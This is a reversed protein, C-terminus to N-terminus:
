PDEFGVRQHELVDKQRRFVMISYIHLLLICFKLCKTNKEGENLLALERYINIPMM